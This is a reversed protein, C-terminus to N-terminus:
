RIVMYKDVIPTSFFWTRIQYWVMYPEHSWPDIVPEGNGDLYVMEVSGQVSTRTVATEHWPKTEPLPIFSPDGRPGGDVGYYLADITEQPSDSPSHHLPRPGELFEQLSMALSLSNRTPPLPLWKQWKFSRLIWPHVEVRPLRRPTGGGPVIGSDIEGDLGACAQAFAERMGIDRPDLM